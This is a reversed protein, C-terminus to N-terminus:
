PEEGPRRTIRNENRLPPRPAPPVTLRPAINGDQMIRMTERYAPDKQVNVVHYAAAKAPDVGALQNVRALKDAVAPDDVIEMARLSLEALAPAKGQAAKYEARIDPVGSQAPFKNAAVMAYDPGVAGPAFHSRGERFDEAKWEPPKTWVKREEVPVYKKNPPAATRISPSAVPPAAAAPASPIPPSSAAIAPPESVPLLPPVPAPPPSPAFDGRTLPLARPPPPPGTVDDFLTSSDLPKPASPPAFDGRTLPATRVGVPQVSVDDFLASASLGQPPEAPPQSMRQMRSAVGRRVASLVKDGIKDALPTNRAIAAGAMAGAAASGPVPILAGSALGGAAGIGRAALDRAVVDAAPSSVARAAADMTKTYAAKAAGPAAMAGRFGAPLAAGVATSLAAQADLADSDGLSRVGGAVMQGALKPVGGMTLTNAAIDATTESGPAQEAVVRGRDRYADRAQTYDEGSVAGLAGALEDAHGFTAASTIGRQIGEAAFDVNDVANMLAKGWRDGVSEEDPDRLMHRPRMQPKQPPPPPGEIDSAVTPATSQPADGQQKRRAIAAKLDEHGM